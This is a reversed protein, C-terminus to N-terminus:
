VRTVVVASSFGLACNGVIQAAIMIPQCRSSRHLTLLPPTLNKRRKPGAAGCLVLYIQKSVMPIGRIGKRADQEELDKVKLYSINFPISIALELRFLSVTLTTMRLLLSSSMCFLGFLVHIVASLAWHALSM